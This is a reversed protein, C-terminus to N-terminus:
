QTALLDFAVQTFLATGLHLNKESIQYYPSHIPHVKGSEPTIDLFFYTGPIEQFFFAADEGGMLPGTMIEIDDASIIKEASKLFRRTVESDNILAPYGDLFEVDCEARYTNAIGKAVAEIRSLVFARTEMDVVRITGIIESSEPIINYAGRGATIGSITIVGPNLPSLERSVILQLGNVIQTAIIVPDISNEPQSGHSGIGKINIRMQDDAAWMNTYSVKVLKHPKAELNPMLHLALIYDPRPNELVGDKVMPEAGGPGEEAPQFILKVKGPLTAEHAKLLKATALLIATHADHGCAHMNKNLSQYPVDVQEEIPLGDMDARIAVVKGEKEGIMAVIGSHNDYTQFPIGMETLRAQVFTATQPLVLGIEPTKHLERRWQVIQDQLAQAQALFNM